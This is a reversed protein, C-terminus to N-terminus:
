AQIPVLKRKEDGTIEFLETLALTSLLGLKKISDWTGAEAMHYLCPYHQCFQENTM